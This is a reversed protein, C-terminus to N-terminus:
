IDDTDCYSATALATCARDRMVQLGRVTERIETMIEGQRLFRTVYDHGVGDRHTAWERSYSYGDHLTLEVEGRRPRRYQFQRRTQRALARNVPRFTAFWIDGQFPRQAPRAPFCATTREEGHLYGRSIWLRNLPRALTYKADISKWLKGELEVDVSVEVFKRTRRARLSYAHERRGGRLEYSYWRDLRRLPVDARDLVKRKNYLAVPMETILIRLPVAGALESDESASGWGSLALSGASVGTLLLFDRRSLEQRETM